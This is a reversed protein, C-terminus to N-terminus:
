KHRVQKARKAVRHRTDDALRFIKTVKTSQAEKSKIIYCSHDDNSDDDSHADPEGALAPVTKNFGQAILIDIQGTM